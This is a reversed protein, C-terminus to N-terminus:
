PILLGFFLVSKKFFVLPVCGTSLISLIFKTIQLDRLVCLTCLLKLAFKKTESSLEFLASQQQFLLLLSVLNYQVM